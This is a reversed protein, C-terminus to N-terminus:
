RFLFSQSLCISKARKESRQDSTIITKSCSNGQKFLPLPLPLLCCNVITKNALIFMKNSGGTSSVHTACKEQQVSYNIGGLGNRNKPVHKSKSGEQNGTHSSNNLPCGRREVHGSMGGFESPTTFMLFCVGDVLGHCRGRDVYALHLHRVVATKPCSWIKHSIV